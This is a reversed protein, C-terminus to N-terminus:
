FIRRRWRFLKEHLVTNYASSFDLFLLFSRMGKNKYESLNTLLRCINVSHDMGPVFGTQAVNLRYVMYRKLPKVLRAELIKVLLSTIIIPRFQDKKTILPHKKNLAILRCKFHVKDLQLGSWLNRLVGCTREWHAKDLISDSV